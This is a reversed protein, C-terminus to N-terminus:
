TAGAAEAKAVVAGATAGAVVATTGIVGVRAGAAGAMAGWHQLGIAAARVAGATAWTAVAATGTVGVM